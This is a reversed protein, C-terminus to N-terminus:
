ELIWREGGTERDKPGEFSPIKLAMRFPSMTRWMRVVREVRHEIKERNSGFIGVDDRDLLREIAHAGVRRHHTVQLLARSRGLLDCRQDLQLGTEVLLVVDDPRALELVGANV